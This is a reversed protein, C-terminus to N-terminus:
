RQSDESFLAELHPASALLLSEFAGETLENETVTIVNLSLGPIIRDPAVLPRRNEPVFDIIAQVSFDDRRCVVCSFRREFLTTRKEYEQWSTGTGIRLLDFLTVNWFLWCHENLRASLQRMFLQENAPVLVQRPSPSGTLKDNSKRVYFVAITLGVVLLFLAIFVSTIAM